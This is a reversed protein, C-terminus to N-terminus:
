TNGGRIVDLRGHLDFPPDYDELHVIEAVRKAVESPNLGRTNVVTAGPGDYAKKLKKSNDELRDSTYQDRGTMLLRLSLENCDGELVIVKGNQVQWSASGPCIAALLSDAKRAWEHEHAFALPDLPGRDLLFIGEGGDKLIDNRLHFQRAIWEDARCKERSSLKTWPKALIAPRREMWEDIAVLNRFQNLTTSKGVGMPGTLYYRFRVPVNQEEAFNCFEPSPCKNTDILEALAGIQTATLFLTILNYVRFNAVSIAYRDEQSLREGEKLFRTYYHYSGPNSRASQALLHRLTEDELSLGVLLCTHKSLHALLGAHGGNLSGVVQDAFSSESFVLRDSPGEMSIQPLVGNPHYIHAAGPRFQMWPNTICEYGRTRGRQEHPTTHALAQEIFDDFNYTVTMYSQRILPLCHQLYPHSTLATAFSSPANRYLHKSMLTVWRSATTFDLKRSHQESPPAADHCRKRFHSYLMETRYPASSRPPSVNLLRTGRIAPDGALSTVLEDWTPINFDASLGAGFILGFRQNEVQKRLHVVPRAYQKLVQIHLTTFDAM